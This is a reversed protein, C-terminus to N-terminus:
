FIMMWAITINAILGVALEVGAFITLIPIM